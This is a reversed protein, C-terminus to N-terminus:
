PNSRYKARFDDEMKECMSAVIRATDPPLSKRSQDQWCLKIVERAKQKERAEPTEGVTAGFILFAVFLLVPILIWL